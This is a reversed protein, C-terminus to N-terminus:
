VSRHQRVLNALEGITACENVASEELEVAFEDEVAMIFEMTTLSDIDFSDIPAQLMADASGASGETSNILGTIDLFIHVCVASVEDIQSGSGHTNPIPSSM